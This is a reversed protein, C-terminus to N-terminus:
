FACCLMRRHCSVYGKRLIAGKAVLYQLRHVRQHTIGNGGSVLSTKYRNECIPVGADNTRIYAPRKLHDEPEAPLKVQAAALPM